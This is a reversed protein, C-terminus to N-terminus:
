QHVKMIMFAFNFLFLLMPTTCLRVIPRYLQLFDILVVDFNSLLVTKQVIKKKSIGCKDNFIYPIHLLKLSLWGCPWVLCSLM